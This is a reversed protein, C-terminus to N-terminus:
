NWYLWLNFIATWHILIKGRFAAMLQPLARCTRSRESAIFTVNFLHTM